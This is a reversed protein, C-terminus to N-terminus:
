ERNLVLDWDVMTCRSNTVVVVVYLPIANLWKKCVLRLKARGVTVHSIKGIIEPLFITPAARQEDVNDKLINDPLPQRSAFNTEATRRTEPYLGIVARYQDKEIIRYQGSFGLENKCETAYYTHQYTDTKTYKYRGRSFLQLERCLDHPVDVPGGYYDEGEQVETSSLSYKVVDTTSGFITPWTPKNDGLVTITRTTAINLNKALLTFQYQGPDLAASSFYTYYSFYGWYMSSQEEKQLVIERNNNITNANDISRITAILDTQQFNIKARIRKRLSLEELDIQCHTECDFLLWHRDVLLIPSCLFPEGNNEYFAQVEYVDYKNSITVTHSADGLIWQAAHQKRYRIKPEFTSENSYGTYIKFKDFTSFESRPSPLARPYALIRCTFIYVNTTGNDEVQLTFERTTLSGNLCALQLEQGAADLLKWQLPTSESNTAITRVDM